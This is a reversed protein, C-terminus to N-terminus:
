WNIFWLFSFIWPGNIHDWTNLVVRGELKGPRALKQNIEKSLEVLREPRFGAFKDRPRSLEIPLTIGGWRSMTKERVCKPEGARYGSVTHKLHPFLSILSCSNCSVIGSLREMFYDRPPPNDRTRSVLYSHGCDFCNARYSKKRQM